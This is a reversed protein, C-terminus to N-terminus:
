PPCRPAIFETMMTESRATLTRGRSERVHEGGQEAAREDKRKSRWCELHERGDFPVPVRREAADGKLAGLAGALRPNV